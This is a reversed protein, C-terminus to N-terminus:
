FGTLPSTADISHFTQALDNGFQVCGKNVLAIQVFRWILGQQDLEPRRDKQSLHQM